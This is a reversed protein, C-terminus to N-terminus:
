DSIEGLRSEFDGKFENWKGKHNELYEDISDQVIRNMSRGEYIQQLHLMARQKKTLRIVTSYEQEREMKNKRKILYLPLM